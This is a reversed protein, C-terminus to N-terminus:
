PQNSRCGRPTVGALVRGSEKEQIWLFCCDQFPRDEALKDAIVRASVILPELFIFPFPATGMLAGGLFAVSAAGAVEGSTWERFDATEPDEGPRLEYIGVLYREGAMASFPLESKDKWGNSWKAEVEIRHVGPLIEIATERVKEGDVSVIEVSRAGGKWYREVDSSVVAVQGPPLRKGPYMQLPACATAMVAFILAGSVSHPWSHLSYMM